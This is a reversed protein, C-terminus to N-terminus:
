AARPPFAEPRTLPAILSLAEALDRVESTAVADEIQQLIETLLATTSRELLDESSVSPQVDMKGVGM